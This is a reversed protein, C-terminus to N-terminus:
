PKDLGLGVGIRLLTNPLAQQQLSDPLNLSKFADSQTLMSLGHITSWVFVADLTATTEPDPAKKVRPLDAIASRLVGFARRANTAMEEHSDPDPLTTNFMLHFHPTYQHAYAFYATGM